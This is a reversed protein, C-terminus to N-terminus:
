HIKTSGIVPLTRSNSWGGGHNKRIRKSKRNEKRTDSKEKFLRLKNSIKKTHHTVGRKINNAHHAGLYAVTGVALGTLATAVCSKMPSSKMPSDGCCCAANGCSGCNKSSGYNTGLPNNMKYAM